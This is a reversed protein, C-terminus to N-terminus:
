KRPGVSHGNSLAVSNISTTRLNSRYGFRAQTRRRKRCPDSCVVSRPRFPRTESQRRRTTRRPRDAAPSATIPALGDILRRDFDRSGHSNGEPDRPLRSRVTRRRLSRPSSPRHGNNSSASATTRGGDSFRSAPAQPHPDQDADPSLGTRTERLRPPRMPTNLVRGGRGLPIVVWTATV